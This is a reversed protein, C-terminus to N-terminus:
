YVVTCTVSVDGAAVRDGTVVVPDIGHEGVEAPASVQDIPGQAKVRALHQDAVTVV